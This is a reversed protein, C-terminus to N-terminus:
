GSKEKTTVTRQQETVVVDLRHERATVLRQHEVIGEVTVDVVPGTSTGGAAVTGNGAIAAGARVGVRGTATISGIGSLSTPSTKSVVGTTTITAVGDVSATAEAATGVTGDATVTATGALSAAAVKGVVGAAAVTGTGTRAATSSAGVTGAATVTGTGALAAGSGSAAVVAGDASTSGTGAVTAAAVVGRVGAASVSGTGTISSSAAVGVVGAAAITAVGAVVATAVKGVVASATTSATGDVSAGAQDGVVGAATVAGSGALAADASVGTAAAPRITFQWGINQAAATYTASTAAQSVGAQGVLQVGAAYGGFRAGSTNTTCLDALETWGTPPTVSGTSSSYRDFILIARFTDDVLPTIADISLTTDASGDTWQQVVGLDDAGPAYLGVVTWRGAASSTASISAGSDASTVSKKYLWVRMNNNANNVPGEVLTWGAPESTLTATTLNIGLVIYAVGDDTITPLTASLANNQSSGPTNGFGVVTGISM